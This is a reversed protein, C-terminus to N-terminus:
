ALTPGPGPAHAFQKSQHVQPSRSNAETRITRPALPLANSKGSRECYLRPNEQKILREPSQIGHDPFFQACPYFLELALELDGSQEYGMILILRQCDHVADHYHVPPPNLLDARRGCNTLFRGRIEDPFEQLSM